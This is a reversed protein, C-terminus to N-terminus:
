ISFGLKFEEAQKRVVEPKEDSAVIGIFAVGLDSYKKVLEALPSVYSNSVPCDFSLFVVATAKKGQISALSVTKGDLGSLTLDIPKGLKDTVLEGDAAVAPATLAFAAAMAAVLRIWKPTLCM